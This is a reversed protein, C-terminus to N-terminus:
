FGVIVKVIRTVNQFDSDAINGALLADEFDNLQKVAKGINKDPLLAARASDADFLLRSTLNLITTKIEFLICIEGQILADQM